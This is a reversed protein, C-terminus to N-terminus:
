IQYYKEQTLKKWIIWSDILVSHEHDSLTGDPEEPIGILALGDTKNFELQKHDITFIKKLDEDYLALSGCKWFVHSKIVTEQEQYGIKGM